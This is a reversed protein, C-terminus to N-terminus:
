ILNNYNSIDDFLVDGKFAFELWSDGNSQNELIFNTSFEKLLEKTKFGKYTITGNEVFKLGFIGERQDKEKM